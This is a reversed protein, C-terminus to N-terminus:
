YIILDVKDGDNIPHTFGVEEDNLLIKYDKGKLNETDIEILRLADILMVESPDFTRVEIEDGDRIITDPDTSKGNVSISYGKFELQKEEGNMLLTYIVPSPLDEVVDKVMVDKVEDFVRIKDGSQCEDTIDAPAGNITIVLEGARIDKWTGNIGVHIYHEIESTNGMYKELIDSIQIRNSYDIRDNDSLQPNEGEEVYEGNVSVKPYMSIKEGNVEFELPSVIDEVYVVADEGDQPKSCKIVDGSSIPTHFTAKVDNVTIPAEKGKDGKITVPEGNVTIMVSMGPKGVLRQPEFGAHILADMVSARKNMAMIQVVEDNVTVTTFTENFNLGSMMAIGVPTVFESGECGGTEDKIFTLNAAKKVAVRDSPLSLKSALMKTFGVTQSGGGVCMVANPPRANLELIAEVLKDTVMNLTSEIAKLVEERKIEIENDLIDKVVFSEMNGLNRKVYEATQFDLLFREMMKDTIEDGAIPIMGYAMVTGDRTIAIDSTGAGVDVLAINLKRLDQPVSVNIAAIPELTLASLRLEVRNLVSLIGEVVIRPLFTAIVEVEIEKGHQGVLNRIISKELTYVVPSYGVCYFDNRDTGEFSDLANKVAKLELASVMDRTIELEPPITESASGRATKLTRGAVATRVSTLPSNIEQELEEKVKKVVEVVKNVDHVQGDLMSRTEHEKVVMHHIVFKGEEMDSLIGVVKRTGIDLSFHM